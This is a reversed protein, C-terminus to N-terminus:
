APTKAASAAAAVKAAADADALAKKVVRVSHVIPRSAPCVYECSGCEVCQLARADRAKSWARERVFTPFDLPALGMPCAEICSGCRICPGVPAKATDRKSLGLLGGTAKVVAAEANSQAAGMMPGGAVLRALDSSTGGCFALLDAFTAGIPTRVNKPQKVSSGAVTVIRELLPIGRNVADAICAATTVNQVVIGLALPLKGAPLWKGLIGKIISREAGQPYHAPLAVVRCGPIRKAAETLAAIAEPKNDEIGIYSESAGLVKLIIELGTVVDDARTRMLADDSTLYPECEAGNLIVTTVQSGKPPTLKVHTPFTAGGLGVLGGDKICTRLEDPTMTRFDRQAPLGDLWSDKGDPALEIAVGQGLTPHPWSRVAVVRASTPAHVPVSVFASAEGILQGKKVLDGVNVVPKAAAGMHQQLHVYLRSPMPLAEIPRDATEHKHHPVKAGGRFKFIMPM